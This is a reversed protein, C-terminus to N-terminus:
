VFCAMKVIKGEKFINEDILATMKKSLLKSKKRSSIM